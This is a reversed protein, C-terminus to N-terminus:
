KMKKGNNTAKVAIHKWHRWLIFVTPLHIRFCKKAVPITWYVIEVVYGRPTLYCCINLKEQLIKM